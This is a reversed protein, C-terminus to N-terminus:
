VDSTTNGKFTLQCTTTSPDTLSALLQASLTDHDYRILVSVPMSLETEFRSYMSIISEWVV